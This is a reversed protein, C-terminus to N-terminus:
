AKDRQEAPLASQIRARCEASAKVVDHGNVGPMIPDHITIIIKGPTVNLTHRPMVKYAGDITVPVLPLGFEVALKFAGNKFPAMYGTSTRRGEPFVMLSIGGKLGKKADAITAKIGATSKTDVLIHGAALCAWGMFPINTLGKRMMWKFQHPFFGYISFIDYAGQHNAVFVYSDKKSVKESRIVKVRVLMVICWLRGWLSGLYYAMKNRSFPACICTGLGLIITFVIVLPTAICWQYIRYLFLKM